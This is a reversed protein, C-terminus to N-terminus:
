WWERNQKSVDREIYDQNDQRQKRLALNFANYWWAQGEGVKRIGGSFVQRAQLPSPGGVDVV